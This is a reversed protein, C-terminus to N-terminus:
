EVDFSSLEAPVFYGSYVRLYDLYALLYNTGVTGGKKTAIMNKSPDIAISSGTVTAMLTDDVYYRVTNPITYVINFKYFQGAVPDSLLADTYQNNKDPDRYMGCITGAGKISQRTTFGNVDGGESPTDMLGFMVQSDGNGMGGPWCVSVELTTDFGWNMTIDLPTNRVNVATTNVYQTSGSNMPSHGALDPVQGDEDNWYVSNNKAAGDTDKRKRAQNFDDNFILQSNVPAGSADGQYVRLYDYDVSKNNGAKLEVRMSAYNSDASMDMRTFAILSGNVYLAQLQPGLVWAVTQFDTALNGTYYANVYPNGFYTDSAPKFWQVRHDDGTPYIEFRRNGEGKVLFPQNDSSLYSAETTGDFTPFRYAIEFTYLTTACNWRAIPRVEWGNVGSHTAVGGTESFYAIGGTNEWKTMDIASGAFEDDWVLTAANAAGVVLLLAFVAALKKLM